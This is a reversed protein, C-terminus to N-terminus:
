SFVNNTGHARAWESINEAGIDDVILVDANSAKRVLDNVNKHKSNIYDSLTTIFTPMHLFVVKAGLSALNNALVAMIYTKGVGFDGHLYCGKMGHNGGWLCHPDAKYRKYVDHIYKIIEDRADDKYLDKNSADKLTISENFLVVNDRRMKDKRQKQLEKSAKYSLIVRHSEYTLIPIYGKFIGNIMHKSSYWQAFISRSQHIQKQTLGHEKIFIRIYPDNLVQDYYEKAQQMYKLRKKDNPTLYKDIEQM